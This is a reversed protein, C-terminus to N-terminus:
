IGRHLFREKLEEEAKEARDKSRMSRRNIIGLQENKDTRRKRHQPVAYLGKRLAALYQLDDAVENAWHAVRKQSNMVMLQADDIQNENEAIISVSSEVSTSLPDDPPFQGHNIRAYQDPIEEKQPARQKAKWYNYISM